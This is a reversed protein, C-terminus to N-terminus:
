LIPPVPPLSALCSSPLLPSSFLPSPKQAGVTVAPRTHDWFLYSVFIKRPWVLIYKAQSINIPVPAGYSLYYVLDSLDLCSRSTYATFLQAIGFKSTVINLDQVVDVPETGDNESVSGSVMSKNYAVLNYQRTFMECYKFHRLMLQCTKRFVKCDFEIIRFGAM